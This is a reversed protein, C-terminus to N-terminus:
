IQGVRQTINCIIEYGITGILNAMDDATIQENGSKGLLVVESGLEVKDINTVDVTIQDMCVRGIVPAKKGNILVYGKNSLDRSYGDAYGTPITAVVTKKTAKFSRGYGVTEGIDITKVMSVVSKWTLAPEIGNPLINEYDPKLGYMVIGLRVFQNYKAHSYLGGASNLCHVHKLNLDSLSDAIREFKEIQLRTFEKNEISNSDAVCLHTFIGLLNFRKSNKRIVNICTAKDNAKLGIRNMGTDIAFHVKIHSKAVDWLKDAYEESILTQILDYKILEKYCNTPTYGLIIIEGKIGALRLEIAEDLNSVAFFDVGIKQLEKSVAVAGHGYANAKVIAIIKGNFSLSKKYVEVNNKIQELDIEIWSRKLM